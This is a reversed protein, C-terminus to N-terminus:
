APAIHGNLYRGVINEEEGRYEAEPVIDYEGNAKRFIVVVEDPYQQSIRVVKNIAQFETALVM